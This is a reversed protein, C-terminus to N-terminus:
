SLAFTVSCKQLLRTKRPWFATEGHLVKEGPWQPTRAHILSMLSLKGWRQKWWVRLLLWVLLLVLLFILLLVAPWCRIRVRQLSGDAQPLSDLLRLIGGDRGKTSQVFTVEKM